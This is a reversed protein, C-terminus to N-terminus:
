KAHAGLDVGAEWWQKATKCYARPIRSHIAETICYMKPRRSVQRQMPGAQAGEGSKSQRPGDALLPSAGSLATFVGLAVLRGRIFIPDIM